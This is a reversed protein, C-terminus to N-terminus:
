VDARELLRSKEGLPELRTSSVTPMMCRTRLANLAKSSGSQSRVWNTSCIIKGTHDTRLAMTVRWLDKARRVLCEFINIWGLQLPVLNKQISPNRESWAPSLTMWWTACPRVVQAHLATLYQPKSRQDLWADRRTQKQSLTRAILHQLWRDQGHLTMWLQPPLVHLVSMLRLWSVHGSDSSVVLTTVNVPTSFHSRLRSIRGPQLIGANYAHIIPLIYFSFVNM